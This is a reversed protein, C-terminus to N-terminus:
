KRNNTKKKSEGTKVFKYVEKKHREFFLRIHKSIAIDYFDKVIFATLFSVFLTIFDTNM